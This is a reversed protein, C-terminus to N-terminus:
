NPLIINTGGTKISPKPIGGFVVYWKEHKGERRWCCNACCSTVWITPLLVWKTAEGWFVPLGRFGASFRSIPHDKHHHMKRITPLHRINDCGRQSPLNGHKKRSLIHTRKTLFFEVNHRHGHVNLLFSRGTQVQSNVVKEWCSVLSWQQCFPALPASALLFM